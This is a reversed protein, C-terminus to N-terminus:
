YNKNTDLSKKKLDLSMSWDISHRTPESSMGCVLQITKESNKKLLQLDKEGSQDQM